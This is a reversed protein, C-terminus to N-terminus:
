SVTVFINASSLSPMQNINAQVSNLNSTTNFMQESAVTQSISLNYTGTGGTGSGFSTITTGPAVLGTIDDILTLNVITGSSVASVTMVTGAISATFVANPTNISGMFISRVLAWPGLAAITAIYNTALMLSGIGAFTPTGSATFAAVIAAQILTAANSPVGSSTVIGIAFSVPLSTPRQFTVPYVPQPPNPQSTDTVNVTTGGTYNCGPNKRSWIATAVALDTGGFAAVYLSNANLTVGGVSLPTSNPNETVYVSLVGPVALVVARVAPIVGVANVAVSAQRRSEFAARTETSIGVIGSSVTASDWGPIAQYISLSIPVPTPGPVNAAFPVTVSGGGPITGTGTSTYLNGVSDQIVAGVPIVVGTAGSCIVQLTTPRTGIRTMFYIRGLGDQFRGSAYAPDFQQSLFLLQQNSNNVAAEQSSALQGQPTSLSYNLPQGFAATIDAQVGALIAASTPIQVGNTGFNIAPVNTGPINAM